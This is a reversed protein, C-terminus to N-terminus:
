QVNVTIQGRMTGTTTDYVTITQLGPSDIHASFTHTGNDAGAGVTYTRPNPTVTGTTSVTFAVTGTYTTFPAGGATMAAVTLSFPAGATPTMTSASMTFFSFAETSRFGLISGAMDALTSDQVPDVITLAQGPTFSTATCSFTASAGAIAFTFTGFQSCSTFGAGTCKQISFVTSGDTAATGVQIDSGNCDTPIDTPFVFVKRFSTASGPPKDPLLISIDVPQRLSSLSTSNFNCIQGSDVFNGRTDIVVCDGSIYPGYTTVFVNTDGSRLFNLAQVVPLPQTPYQKLPLASNFDFPQTGPCLTTTVKCVQFNQAFQMQGKQWFELTYFTGQPDIQDNGYVTTSIVGSGNPRVDIQPAIIVSSAMVRPINGSYNRLRIRVFADGVQNATLVNKLNGQM